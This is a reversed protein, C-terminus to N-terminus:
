ANRSASMSALRLCSAENEGLTTISRLLSFSKLRGVYYPLAQGTFQDAYTRRLMWQHAIPMSAVVDEEDNEEERDDEEENEEEDENEDERDDEEDMDDEQGEENEDDADGDNNNNNNDYNVNNNGANCQDGDGSLALDYLVSYFKAFTSRDDEMGLANALEEDYAMVYSFHRHTPSNLYEYFFFM